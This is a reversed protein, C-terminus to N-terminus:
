GRGGSAAAFYGRRNETSRATGLAAGAGSLSRRPRKNRFALGLIRRLAAGPCRGKLYSTSSRQARWESGPGVDFGLSRGAPLWRPQGPSRGSGTPGTVGGDAPRAAERRCLGHIRRRSHCKASLGSAEVASPLALGAEQHVRPGTTMGGMARLGNGLIPRLEACRGAASLATEPDALHGSPGEGQRPPSRNMLCTGKAM